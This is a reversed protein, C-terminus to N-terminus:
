ENTEDLGTRLYGRTLSAKGSVMYGETRKDQM